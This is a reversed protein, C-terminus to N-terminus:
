LPEVFESLKSFKEFYALFFIGVTFSIGFVEADFQKKITIQTARLVAYVFQAVQQLFPSRPNLGM